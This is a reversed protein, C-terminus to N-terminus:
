QFVERRYISQAALVRRYPRVLKTLAVQRGLGYKGTYAGLGEDDGVVPVGLTTGPDSVAADSAENVNALNPETPGDPNPRFSSIMAAQYPYNIRVAVLGQQQPPLSTQVPSFPGV